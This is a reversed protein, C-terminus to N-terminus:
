LASQAPVRLWRRNLPQVEKHWPTPRQHFSWWPRRFLALQLIEQNPLPSVRLETSVNYGDDGLFEGLPYGRVSDAGGIFFQETVVLPRTSAQGSGRILISVRDMVKQVRAWNVYAKTFRNDAGFRSSKTDNNEMGGFAEELGQFVSFSIFNRGTSDIWDYNLGVRLM